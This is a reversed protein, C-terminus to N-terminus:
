AAKKRSAAYLGILGLGLLALPGPEPVDIASVYFQQGTSSSDFAVSLTDGASFFSSIGTTGDAGFNIRYGLTGPAMLEAASLTYSTALGGNVSFLVTNDTLNGGDHNNNLWISNLDVNENFTFVLAEGSIDINDDAASECRNDTNFADEENVTGTGNLGTSCVGLGAVGSDFYVYADSPNATIDIDTGFAATSYSTWASEGVTSDALGQFNILTAQASNALALLGASILLQNSKKM